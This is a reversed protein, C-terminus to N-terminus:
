PQDSLPSDTAAFFRQIRPTCRYFWGAAMLWMAMRLMNEALYLIYVRMYFSAKFASFWSLDLLPGKVEHVIDLVQRPLLTADSVVWFLLYAAFTRSAIRIGQEYTM